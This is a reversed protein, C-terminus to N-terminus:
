KVPPFLLAPPAGGPNEAARKEADEKLQMVHALNLANVGNCIMDAVASNRAIAFTQGRGDVLLCQPPNNPREIYKCLTGDDHLHYETNNATSDGRVVSLPEAIQNDDPKVAGIAAGDIKRLEEPIALSPSDPLATPFPIIKPLHPKQNSM